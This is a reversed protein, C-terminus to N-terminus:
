RKDGLEMTYKKMNFGMRQYFMIVEENGAAINVNIREINSTEFWTIMRKILYEGLGMGRFDDYLYFSDIEGIGKDICALIYGYPKNKECLVEVRYADVSKFKEMRKDFTTELFSEKFHRSHNQHHRNLAEWLPKIENIDDIERIDLM